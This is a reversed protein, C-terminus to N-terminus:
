KTMTGRIGVSRIFVGTTMQSLSHFAWMEELIHSALHPRAGVRESASVAPLFSFSVGGIGSYTSAVRWDKGKESKRARM